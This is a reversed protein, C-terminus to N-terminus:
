CACSMRPKIRLVSLTPLLSFHAIGELGSRFFLTLFPLFTVKCFLFKTLVVKVLLGFSIDGSIERTYCIGESIIHHSYYKEETYEEWFGM